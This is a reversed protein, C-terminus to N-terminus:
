RGIRLSTRLGLTSASAAKDECLGQVQEFTLKAFSKIRARILDTNQCRGHPDLDMRLVTARRPVGPNLSLLNESLPRPLM